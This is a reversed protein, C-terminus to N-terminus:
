AVDEARLVMSCCGNGFCAGCCNKCPFSLRQRFIPPASFLHHSNWALVTAVQQNIIATVGCKQDVFAFLELLLIRLVSSQWIWRACVVCLEFTDQLQQLVRNRSVFGLVSAHRGSTVSHALFGRCTHM